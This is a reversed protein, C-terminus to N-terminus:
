VVLIKYEVPPKENVASATSLAMTLAVMGDIRGRESGKNLKRNGAPDRVVISNIACMDLVPNNGHALKTDLLLGELTNLAPSMSQYGQGFEVFREDILADKFGAKSLWPKLHRMNWRDFALKRIDYADFLEKLVHAVYEYSISSGPTTKLYGKTKWVDYPVHDKIAKERLGNEPLWFTPQVQWIGEIRSVLVLATLDAVTSLDLGAYVPIKKDFPLPIKGNAKWVSPSVFPNATDIRQNLILNRYESERAPMREADSAMGMVEQTNLFDDWAPNALKITEVAFPDLDIPATYLKCVVRPDLGSMADDVLISMLDNNTPAQTSIIISLPDEQAGTATELADYLASRPGRVQGLEDHVVFSPNLGYATTVEASLARYVTGLRECYLEKHTGHPKVLERLRPHMRVMKSALNFILAAQDRSQATSYLQGNLKFRPGCLHALLLFAALSTKANKRGFSLIARRTGAKNDYILRIVDKQWSTLKVKHGVLKGEPILCYEEIFEIVELAKSIPEKEAIVKKKAAL